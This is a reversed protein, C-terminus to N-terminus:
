APRPVMLARARGALFRAAQELATRGPTEPLPALAAAAERCMGAITEASAALADHRRLVEMLQPRNSPKWDELLRLLAAREKPEAKELTHIVPLTPKGNSLDTGLSKGVKDERGVLDVCDDYVQYATGLAMGYHHLATVAPEGAGALSAGQSCALAFLEATKMRLVRLYHERALEFQGQHLTQIIEGSCVTRTAAAVARCVATTPFAAAMTLAHAFLADGLLIAVSNGWQRAVTPRQRRIRADDMVDDHVLTALHVMEIITAVNVHEDRIGGSAEAALGVLAPRLQKGRSALAYRAPEVIEPEFADLQEELRRSVAALFPRVPEVIEQWEMDSRGTRAVSEAPSSPKADAALM